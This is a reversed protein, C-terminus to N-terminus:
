IKRPGLPLGPERPQLRPEPPCGRGAPHHPREDLPAPLGAARAGGGASDAGTDRKPTLTETNFKTLARILNTSFKTQVRISKFKILAM